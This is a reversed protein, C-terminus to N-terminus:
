ITVIRESINANHEFEIWLTKIPLFDRVRDAWEIVTITDAAGIYELAGLAELEEGRKLRYADIHVLRFTRPELAYTRSNKIRQKRNATNTNYIRLVLFTPSNVRDTVGLSKAFFQVFTTKGAGLEGVLGFVDGPHAGEAIQQAFEQMVDLNQIIKKM